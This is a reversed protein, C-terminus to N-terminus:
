SSAEVARPEYVQDVLQWALAEEANMFHDRDLTRAVLDVPQRCHQSYLRVLRERMRLIDAAHREIDSAQGRFSGSPQHLMVSANPLIARMGPAGAMLLFSGMSAGLGLCLTAVPCRVHQMTDYIALGSTVAGGPSNIYLTLPKKPNESELFLMQACVTAALTDEIQGNVFVIRDRLLRSYIDFSREGRSSQEIVM